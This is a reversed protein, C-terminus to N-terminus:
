RTGAGKNQNKIEENPTPFCAEREDRTKGFGDYIKVKEM